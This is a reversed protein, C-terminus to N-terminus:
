LACLPPVECRPMKQPHGPDPRNAPCSPTQALQQHRERRDWIPRLIGEQHRCQSQSSFRERVRPLPTQIRCCTTQFPRIPVQPVSRFVERTTSDRRASPWDQNKATAGCSLPVRCPRSLSDLGLATIGCSPEFGNM